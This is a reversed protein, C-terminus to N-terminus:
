SEPWPPACPENLIWDLILPVTDRPLGVSLEFQRSVRGRLRLTSAWTETWPPTLLSPVPALAVPVVPTVACYWTLTVGCSASAMLEPSMPAGFGRSGLDIALPSLM